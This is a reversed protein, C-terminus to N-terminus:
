LGLKVSCAPWPSWGRAAQVRSAIDIQQDRTALDATPAYAGGGNSLWTGRDFQIGGYFGNGSSIGWNGGSECQALRDWISGDSVAPKAYSATQAQSLTTQYVSTSAYSVVPAPDVSPLPRDALQENPDPIRIQDGPHIVDPDAVNPNANFLRVYTTNHASAIAYLTDGENVTIINPQPSVTQVAQAESDTSQNTQVETINHGLNGTNLSLAILPATVFALLPM